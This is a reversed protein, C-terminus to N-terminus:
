RRHESISSLLIRQVDRILLFIISIERHSYNMRKALFSMRRRLLLRSEIKSCVEEKQIEIGEKMLKEQDRARKAAKRDRSEEREDEGSAGNAKKGAADELDKGSQWKPESKLELWVLHLSFTSGEKEKYVVNAKERLVDENAGSINLAAVTSYHGAYKQVIKSMRCWTTSCASSERGPISKAVTEWFTSGQQDTDTIPDKSASKWAKALALEESNTWEKRKGKGHHLKESICITYKAIKQSIVPFILL